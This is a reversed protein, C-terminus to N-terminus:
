DVMFFDRPSRAFPHTPFVPGGPPAGSAGPMCPAAYGPMGPGGPGGPGGQYAPKKPPFVMGQFPLYPPYVDYTPGYIAGYCNATYYGPGCMDPAQPIPAYGGYQAYAPLALLSVLLPAALSAVTPKM